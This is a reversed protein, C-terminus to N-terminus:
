SSTKRDLPILLRLHQLMIVMLKMMTRVMKEVQLHYLVHLEALARHGVCVCGAYTATTEM